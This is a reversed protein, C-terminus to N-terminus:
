VGEKDLAARETPTPDRWHKRYHAALAPHATAYHNAYESGTFSEEDKRILLAIRTNCEPCVVCWCRRDEDYEHDAYPIPM